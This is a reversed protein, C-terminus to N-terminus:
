HWARGTVPTWYINITLLLLLIIMIMSLEIVSILLLVNEQKLKGLVRILYTQVTWM